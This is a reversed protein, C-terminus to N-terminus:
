RFLYRAELKILVGKAWVGGLLGPDLFETSAPNCWLATGSLTHEAQFVGEINGALRYIETLAAEHPTHAGDKRYIGLINYTASKYKRNSSPGTEGLSGYEEDASDAWVFVAPLEDFRVGFIQPNDNYVNKVRTTINASLDPSATTTNYQSLANVVAATNTQYAFPM